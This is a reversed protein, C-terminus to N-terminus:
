KKYNSTRIDLIKKIYPVGRGDGCVLMATM